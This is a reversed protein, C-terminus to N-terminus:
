TKKRLRDASGRQWEPDNPDDDAFPDEESSEGEESDARRRRRGRCRSFDSKYNGYEDTFADDYEDDCLMSDATLHHNDDDNPALHHKYDDDDDDPNDYTHEVGNNEEEEEQLEFCDDASIPRMHKNNAKSRRQGLGAHVETSAGSSCGTSTRSIRKGATLGLNIRNYKTGNGVGATAGGLCPYCDDFRKIDDCVYDSPM